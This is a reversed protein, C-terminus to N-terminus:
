DVRISQPRQLSEQVVKAPPSGCRSFEDHRLPKRGIPRHPVLLPRANGSIDM